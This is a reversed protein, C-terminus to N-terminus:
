VRCQNDMAGHGLLRRLAVQLLGPLDALLLRNFQGLLLGLLEVIRRMTVRVMRQLSRRRPLRRLRISFRTLGKQIACDLGRGM